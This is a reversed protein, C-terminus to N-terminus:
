IMHLCACSKQASSRKWKSHFREPTSERAIGDAQNADRNWDPQYQELIEAFIRGERVLTEVRGRQAM